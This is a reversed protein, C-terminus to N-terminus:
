LHPQILLGLLVKKDSDLDQNSVLPALLKLHVWKTSTDSFLVDGSQGSAGPIASTAGTTQSFSRM